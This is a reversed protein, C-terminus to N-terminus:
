SAYNRCEVSLGSWLSRLSIWEGNIIWRGCIHLNGDVVIWTDVAGDSAKRQVAYGACESLHVSQGTFPLSGGLAKLLLGYGYVGLCRRNGAAGSRGKLFVKSQGGEGQKRPEQKEVYVLRRVAHSMIFWM